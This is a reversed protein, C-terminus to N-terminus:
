SGDGGSALEAVAAQLAREQWRDMREIDGDEDEFIRKVFSGPDNTARRGARAARDLLGTLRDVEALLAAVDGPAAAIAVADPHRIGILDHRYVKPDKGSTANPAVEYVPMKSADQVFFPDAPNDIFQPQAGQMGWRSFAMVTVRGMGKVWRALYVQNTKTNGSWHWPGASTKEWRERIESITSM